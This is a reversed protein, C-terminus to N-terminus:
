PYSQAWSIAAALDTFLRINVGKEFLTKLLLQDDKEYELTSVIALKRLTARHKYRLITQAVRDLSKEEPACHIQRKDIVLGTCESDEMRSLIPRYLNEICNNCCSRGQSSVVMCNDEVRSSFELTVQDQQRDHPEDQMASTM